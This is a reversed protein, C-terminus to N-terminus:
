KLSLFCNAWEIKIIDLCTKYLNDLKNNQAIIRLRNISSIYKIKVLRWLIDRSLYKEFKKLFKMILYNNIWLKSDSILLSDLLSLEECSINFQISNIKIKKTYNKTMNYFSTKSETKWSLFKKFVISYDSNIQINKQTDKTYVILKNQISYDKLFIELSKVWSIFYDWSTEDKIIKHAINWYNDDVIDVERLIERNSVYYLWSKFPFIVNIAKLRYIIKYIEIVHKKNWKSFDPDIISWIDYLNLIKWSQKWLKKVIKDFTIM